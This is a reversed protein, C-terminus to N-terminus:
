QGNLQNKLDRGGNLVFDGKKRKIKVQMTKYVNNEYVTIYMCPACACVCVSESVRARTCVCVCRNVSARARACACM